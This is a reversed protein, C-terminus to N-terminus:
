VFLFASTFTNRASPVTADTSQTQLTTWTSNDNSGEFTWQIPDKYENNKSTAYRFSDATRATGFDITARVPYANTSGGTGWYPPNNWWEAEPARANDILKQAVAFSSDFYPTLSVVSAGTYDVRVGGSLLELEDMSVGQGDLGSQNGTNAWKTKTISMRYYRFSYPTGGGGAGGGGGGGSEPIYLRGGSGSFKIQGGSGKTVIAMFIEQPFYFEGM